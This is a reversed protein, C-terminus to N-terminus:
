RCKSSFVCLEQFTVPRQLPSHIIKEKHGLQADLYPHCCKKETLTSFTARPVTRGHLFQGTGPQLAPAPADTPYVGGKGHAFLGRGCGTTLFTITMPSPKSPKNYSRHCRESSSLPAWSVVAPFVFFPPLFFLGNGGLEENESGKGAAVLPYGVPPWLTPPFSYNWSGGAQVQKVLSTWPEPNLVMEQEHFSSQRFIVLSLWAVLRSWFPAPLSTPRGGLEAAQPCCCGEDEWIGRGRRGEEGSGPAHSMQLDTAVAFAPDRQSLWPTPCSQLVCTHPHHTHTCAARFPAAYTVTTMMM